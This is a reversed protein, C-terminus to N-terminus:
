ILPGEMWETGQMAAAHVGLNAATERDCLTGEVFTSDNRGKKRRGEENRRGWGFAGASTEM